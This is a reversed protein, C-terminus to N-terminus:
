YVLMTQSRLIKIVELLKDKSQYRVFFIQSCPRLAAAVTIGSFIAGGGWGAM